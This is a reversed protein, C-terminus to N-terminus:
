RERSLSMRVSSCSRRKPARISNFFGPKVITATMVKACPTPALRCLITLVPPYNVFRHRPLVPRILIHQARLCTIHHLHHHLLPHSQRQEPYSYTQNASKRQRSQHLAQQESHARSVRQSKHRNRRQQCRHCHQGTVNRRPPSRFNIRNDSQAALSQKQNDISKNIKGMPKRRM